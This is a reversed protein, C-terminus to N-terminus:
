FNVADKYGYIDRKLENFLTSIGKIGLKEKLTRLANRKKMDEVTLIEPSLNEIGEKKYKELVSLVIERVEGEFGELKSSYLNLFRKVREETTVLPANFVIHALIDFGDATDLQEIYKIVDLNIENERLEEIFKARKKDDLWIGKLEELNHTIKLVNDKVYKKYQARSIYNGHIEIEVEESVTVDVGSIKIKRPKVREPKLEFLIADKNTEVRKLLKKYKDATVIVKVTNNSPLGDLEFFGDSDTFADKSFRGVKVRVKAGEIRENSEIDCVYGKLHRDFPKEPVEKDIKIKGPVDWDDLLRTANTFDIIRFFGKGKSLRSGRGVIQKFLVTSAIPKMFVINRLHPIDIGTSLLDVTTAILPYLREEDRFVTLDDKEESVIRTALNEKNSLQNLFTTVDQAHQMDVCYIITKAKKDTEHLIRLFRECMFKTRDPLTITREFESPQYYPKVANLDIEDDYTVEMGPEVILGEKDVNTVIKYIKYPVLYGDEIAQALSYKFVPEGFYEYVDINDERRPTATMGLHYATNFHDLIIGWDGYRSRHCEDIIILDFFDRPIKKYLGEKYLTQYTSFYIKRNKKYSNGIIKTRAHKFPEYADYAQDRLFIRDTLFLVRSFFNSQVLKWVIQFSVLTKGTGTAMTLLVKRQNKLIAEVVNKVATEQYARLRKDPILYTPYELPSLKDPLGKFEVYIRLLEKPTLFSDVEKVGLTRRDYILIKHGNTAYAIPVDLRQSYDKAQAVGKEATKKESKVEVVGVIINNVRLVIDAFKKKPEVEIYEEGNVYYRKSKIPFQRELQEKKWGAKKLKPVVLNEKTDDENMM